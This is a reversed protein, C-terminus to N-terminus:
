KFVSTFTQDAVGIPSLLMSIKAVSFHNDLTWDRARASKAIELVGTSSLLFIPRSRAQSLSVSLFAMTRM